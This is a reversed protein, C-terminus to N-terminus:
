GLYNLIKHMKLLILKILLNSQIYNISFKFKNRIKSIRHEYSFLNNWAYQNETNINQIEIYDANNKNNNSLRNGILTYSSNLLIVIGNYLDFKFYNTSIISQELLTTFRINSFTYFNRFYDFYENTNLNSSSYFDSLKAFRPFRKNLENRNKQLWPKFM